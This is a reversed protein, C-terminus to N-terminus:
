VCQAYYENQVVCSSGTECSTGGTWATGGCQAYKAVVAGGVSGASATGSAAITLLSKTATTFGSSPLSPSTSNPAISYLPTEPAASPSTTAVAAAQTTLVTAATSATSVGAVTTSTGNTSTTTSNDSPWVAPGPMTYNTPQMVDGILVSGCGPLHWFLFCFSFTVSVVPYYINILIGPEEGTYVGPIEVMPEPTLSSTSTVEIQACSIYFQAGGVTSAGHLAIAEVRLLYQGAPVETPLTFTFNQIGSAAWQLGESTINAPGMGYVKFWDGSGDYESALTADPAASM